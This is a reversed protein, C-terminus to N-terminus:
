RHVLVPVKCHTLVKVTESGLLLAQIGKRGHSAMVILDIGRAAATEIIADSPSYHEVQLTEVTVGVAKAKATAAALVNAAQQAIRSKYDDPSDGVAAVEAAFVQFPETVTLILVTAKIAAALEVGHQVAKEALASGDIPILIHRYM